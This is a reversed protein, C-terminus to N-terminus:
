KRRGVGIVLILFIRIILIFYDLALHATAAVWMGAAVRSRIAAIDYLTFIGVLFVVVISSIFLYVDLSMYMIAMMSWVSVGILGFMAIWIGWHMFGSGSGPNFMRPSSRVVIASAVLVATAAVIAVTFLQEAETVSGLYLVAFLLVPRNLFGTAVCMGYFTVIAANNKRSYGLAFTAIALGLYAVISLIYTLLNYVLLYTFFMTLCFLFTGGALTPLVNSKIVSDVNVLEEESVIKRSDYRRQNFFAMVDEGNFM